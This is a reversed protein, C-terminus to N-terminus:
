RRATGAPGAVVDPSHAEHVERAFSKVIGRLAEPSVGTGSDSCPVPLRLSVVVSHGAAGVDLRVSGADLLRIVKLVEGEVEDPDLVIFPHTSEDFWIAEWVKRLIERIETAAHNRVLQDATM